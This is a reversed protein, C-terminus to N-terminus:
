LWAVGRTDRCEEKIEEMGGIERLAAYRAEEPLMGKGVNEEILKELHFRLEESLEKEVCSKRFLSRLRLPLKYFWRMM